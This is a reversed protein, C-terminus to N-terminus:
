ANELSGDIIVYVADDLLVLVRTELVQLEVGDMEEKSRLSDRDLHPALHDVLAPRPCAEKEAGKPPGRSVVVFIYIYNTRLYSNDFLNTAKRKAGEIGHPEGETFTVMDKVM